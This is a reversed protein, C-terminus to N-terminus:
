RTTTRRLSWAFSRTSIRTPRTKDGAAVAEGAGAAAGAAAAGAAATKMEEKAIRPAARRSATGRPGSAYRYLNVRKLAVNQSVM